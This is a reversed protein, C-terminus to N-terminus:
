RDRVPTIRVPINSMLPQGSYREYVVDMPILRGAPSGIQLVDGDESPDGGFGHTMSVTGRRLGRDAAVVVPISGHLSAMTALEYRALGLAELDDPHLYALNHPRGRNTAEINCTSNNTHMVRRCLLRFDLGEGVLPAAVDTTARVVDLDRMMDADGVDLRGQWGPDKPQVSIDSPFLAVSPHQKIDALPIRSQMTMIEFLEDTTPKRGMDLAVPAPADTSMPFYVGPRMRLQVGLRVALDYFLEWEEVLDSGDPRSTVPPAYQAAAYPFGGGAWYLQTWEQQFTLGPVELSMTPAVVYHALKATQSMVVDITVLLDLAKMAEITLLQDPFAAVPNGGFVLLARVQGDGPMLIEEPLAASPLGGLTNALGRVRLREGFGYAPSPPSAQAKRPYPPLLTGPNRVHDGARMYRGCVTNLALVLYEALTGHGTGMSPGTGTRASSTRADAFMRAARILDDVAVDAREAAYSPSYPEVAARLRESGNVNEAVFAADHRGENLIVHLMAALVAVDEGPRLQLHIDARAAIQSRRPDVVILTGGRARLQDVLDGPDGLDGCSFSVLPNGGIFMVVDPDDESPAMWSGHLGRAIAKGPKDITNSTFRMPSGIADMFADALPGAAPCKPSSTGTYLAVSRPGHTDLIGRLREAIESIAVSSPISSFTGDAGRKMSHVLRSPSRELDPIARGKVCTFGHHIPSSRDGTVRVARGDEVDVLIACGNQCLRCFSPHTTRAM